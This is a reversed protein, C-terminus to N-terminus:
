DDNLRKVIEITLGEIKGIMDVDIAERHKGYATFWINEAAKNRFDWKTEKDKYTDIWFQMVNPCESIAENKLEDPIPKRGGGKNGPQFQM